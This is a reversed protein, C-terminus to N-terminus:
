AAHGTGRRVRGGGSPCPHLRGDVARRLRGHLRRIHWMHSSGDDVGDGVLGPTAAARGSLSVNRSVTPVPELVLASNGPIKVRKGETTPAMMAVIWPRARGSHASDHRGPVRVRISHRKQTGGAERADFLGGRLPGKLNIKPHLMPSEFGGSRGQRGPLHEDRPREHWPPDSCCITATSRTADQYGALPVRLATMSRVRALDGRACGYKMKYRAHWHMNGTLHIRAPIPGCEQM